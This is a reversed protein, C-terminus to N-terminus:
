LRPGTQAQRRRLGASRQRKGRGVMETVASSPRSGWCGWLLREDYEVEFLLRGIQRERWVVSSIVPQLRRSLPVAAVQAVDGVRDIGLGSDVVNRSEPLARRRQKRM